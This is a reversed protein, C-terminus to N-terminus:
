RRTSSLRSGAAGDGAPRGAVAAARARPARPRPVRAAPRRAPRRVALVALRARRDGARARRPPGLHRRRHHAPRRPHRPRPADVYAAADPNGAQHRVWAHMLSRPLCQLYVPVDRGPSSGCCQTASGRTTATVTAATWPSWSTPACSTSPPRWPRRRRRRPRGRVLTRPGADGDMGSDAFGLLRVEGVGLLRAAAHLEGERVEGDGGAEGRTACVVSTHAGRAAAHLLTSGTGFSEDDPHAVVVTVRPESVRAERRLVRDCSGDRRAGRVDPLPQPRGAPGGRVLPPGGRVGAPRPARRRRRAARLRPPDPLAATRRARRAAGAPRRVARRDRSRRAALAAAGYGGMSAVYADLAPVDVGTTWMEFLGARVDAWAPSQLGALADDFGPPTGLVMWDLLVVGPVRDAGLRERLDLAAWGAHSLAVPVVRELGARDIPPWSPTSCSPTGTTASPRRTATGPCTSRSRAATRPRARSCATSSPATVAGAPCSCCPPHTPAAGAASAPTPRPSPHTTAVTSM